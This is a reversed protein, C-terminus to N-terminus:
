GYGREGEYRRSARDKIKSDIEGVLIMAVVKMWLVAEVDYDNQGIAVRPPNRRSCQIVHTFLLGM